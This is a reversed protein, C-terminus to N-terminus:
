AKRAIREPYFKAACAADAICVDQPYKLGGPFDPHDPTYASPIVRVKNGPFFAVWLTGGYKIGYSEVPVTAKYLGNPDKAYLVDDRWEVEVTLDSRWKAPVSISGAISNGGNHSSMNGAWVGNVYVTGLPIDTYNLVEITLGIPEDKVRSDAARSQSPKCGTGLAALVVLVCVMWIRKMM